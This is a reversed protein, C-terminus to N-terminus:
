NINTNITDQWDAFIGTHMNWFYKKYRIILSFVNALFHKRREEEVGLDKQGYFYRTKPHKLM